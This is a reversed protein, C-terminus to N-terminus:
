DRRMAAPLTFEDARGAMSIPKRMAWTNRPFLVPIVGMDAIAIETAKALLNARAQTDLTSLAIKLAEDVVPNTYRGRNSSGSGSAADFSAIINRLPDSAEGAASGWGAMIMSFEPVGGAGGTSGRSFFNAAPLTEVSAEVGVRNLMQAIAEIIKTDNAYRGAPGHMTLRFGNAFGAETLLKRSLEPDFAPANLSKSTGFFAQPLYQGAATAEGEMIRDCIAQRNIAHSIAIRVRKDKFPNRISGGDKAKVFPTEDRFQDMAVYIVRNSISSAINITSTAKLRALDATPITEILDVDGALLAAVRTPDTRLVRMVVREWPAKGGWWKENRVLVIREGRVFEQHRYPGTGIAARGSNYDETTADRNHAPVIGFTSLDIPTQPAPTDTVIRITLDDIKSATKGKIFGGFGSPSRPVNQARNFTYIVDDATFPKGDHWLVNSRLKFEWILADIVRWSLALGPILQQAEDQFVLPEFVSRALSKNPTTNHFHPDFSSPDFALGIRLETSQAFLRGPAFTELGILSSMAGLLSRRNLM